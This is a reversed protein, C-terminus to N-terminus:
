GEFENIVEEIFIQRNKELQIIEGSGILKIMPRIPNQDNVFIIQGVQGNSLKVTSGISYNLIGLQLAKLSPIDFKGFNDLRMMELVKFPSQKTRYLRESTLAHFTDAIAIIRAFSHIKNKEGTPYGSGDLREHHQLIAVKAGGTLLPSNQVMKFSYFPHKKIEEFEELTLSSKKFLIKEPIKAMGCDALCGAISLQIIDAKTMQLKRGIYSSLLGVSISHQFLYEDTTSFHHLSFLESSFQEIKEILPIMIKRIKSIDVPLGSQWSLFEKKYDKVANLFIETFSSEDSQKEKVMDEIEDEIIEKPIFPQGDVLTKEVLVAPVLFAHLLEILEKNIVTKKPIIPRNTRSFIDESLICGELLETISVRM